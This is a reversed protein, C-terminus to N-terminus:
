LTIRGRWTKLMQGVVASVAAAAVIVLWDRGDLPTVRLMDALPRIRTTALQVGVALFAGALAHPNAIVRAPRLVAETSRANGLHAIQALALTMFAMTSAQMTSQELAWMYAGLTSLALLGAYGFIEQFAWLSDGRSSGASTADDGRPDGPEMALALAPFTDTVMNLWLIQLPAVLHHAASLIAADM